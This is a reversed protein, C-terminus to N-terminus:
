DPDGPIKTKKRSFDYDPLLNNLIECINFEFIAQFSMEGVGKRSLSFIPRQYRENGTFKYLNVRELFDDWLLVEDPVHDGSSPVSKTLREIFVLPPVCSLAEELTLLDLFSHNLLYISRFLKFFM